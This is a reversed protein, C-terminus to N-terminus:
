LRERTTLEILKVPMRILSVRAMTDYKWVYSEYIFM